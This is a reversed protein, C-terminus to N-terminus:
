AFGGQLLGNADRKLERMVASRLALISPCFSPVFTNGSMISRRDALPIIRPLRSTTLRPLPLDPEIDRLSQIRDKSIAKQLALLSAKLYKVTTGAGHHKTMKFLFKSFTVLLKLRKTIKVPKDSCALIVRAGIQRVLAPLEYTNGLSVMPENKIGDKFSKILSFFYNNKMKFTLRTRSTIEGAQAL